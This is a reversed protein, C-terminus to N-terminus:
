ESRPQRHHITSSYSYSHHSNCRRLFVQGLLECTFRSWCPEGYGLQPLDLSAFGPIRISLLAESELVLDYMSSGVWVKVVVMEYLPQSLFRNNSM